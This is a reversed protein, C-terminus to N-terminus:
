KNMRRRARRERLQAEHMREYAIAAFDDLVKNAAPIDVEEIPRYIPASKIVTGDPARIAAVGVQYLNNNM